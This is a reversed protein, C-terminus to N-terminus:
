VSGPGAGAGRLGVGFGAAGAGAAAGSPGSLLAVNPLGTLADTMRGETNDMLSGAVHTVRGDADRAAIGRAEVWRWEGSDQRVRHENKVERAKGARLARLEAEFRPKDHPHVREMWADLGAWAESLGLIAKWRRSGWLRGAILDWDWFGEQSAELALAYRYWEEGSERNERRCACEIGM